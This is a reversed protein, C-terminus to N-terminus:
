VLANRCKNRYIHRRQWLRVHLRDMLIKGRHSEALPGATHWYDLTRRSVVLGWFFQSGLLEFTTRKEKKGGRWAGLGHFNTKKVYGHLCSQKDRVEAAPLPSTALQQLKHLLFHPFNEQLPLLLLLFLFFRPPTRPDRGHSARPTRTLASLDKKKLAGPSRSLEARGGVRRWWGGEEEAEGAIMLKLTGGRNIQTQIAVLTESRWPHTNEEVQETGRVGRAVVRGLSM